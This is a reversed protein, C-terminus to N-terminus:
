YYTHEYEEDQPLDKALWAAIATPVVPIFICIMIALTTKM